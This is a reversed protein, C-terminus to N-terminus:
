YATLSLHLVDRYDGATWAESGSGATVNVSYIFAEGNSGNNTKRNFIAKLANASITPVAQAIIREAAIGSGSNFTFTYPITEGGGVYSSTASNWETLAGKDAYVDFSWATRNSRIYTTGSATTTGTGSIEGLALDEYSIIYVHKEVNLSLLIEEEGSPESIANASVVLILMGALFLKKM